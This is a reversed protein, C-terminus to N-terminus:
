RGRKRVEAAYAGQRRHEATNPDVVTRTYRAWESAGLAEHGSEVTFSSLLKEDYHGRKLPQLQMFPVEHDFDIPMDTRTLRINTFLPGLWTDTEIIGEFLEYGSPRALNAVPRVLLSWGPATSVLSGPWVQVYGPQVGATLFPPAFGRAREPAAADFVEDHGPYNISKLPEWGEDPDIQFFVAHGDWRLRFSFPLFVHWGFNSASCVPECFRLARVPLTGGVSRDARQPPRESDILQFFRVLPGATGDPNETM